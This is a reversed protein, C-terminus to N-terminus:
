RIRALLDRVEEVMGHYREHFGEGMEETEVRDFVKELDAQDGATLIRDALPFLGLDEKRIHAALLDAYALAHEVVERDAGPEGAALCDAAAGLARVHARGIEHEALMMAVPGAEKSMGREILKAFLHREEKGHHCRDAFNRFFDAAQEFVAPGVAGGAELQGAAVRTLELMEEIVRHEATLTETPKM